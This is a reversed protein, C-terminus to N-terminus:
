STSDDNERRSVWGQPPKLITKTLWLITNKLKEHKNMYISGNDKELIGVSIRLDWCIRFFIGLIRLVRRRACPVVVKPLYFL